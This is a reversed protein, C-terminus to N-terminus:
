DRATIGRVNTKQGKDWVKAKAKKEPKCDPFRVLFFGRHFVDQSRM